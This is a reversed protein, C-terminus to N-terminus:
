LNPSMRLFSFFILMSLYLIISSPNKWKLGSIRTLLFLIMSVWFWGTFNQWPIVGDKWQWFDLRIAVPEIMMDLLLMLITSFFAGLLPHRILRLSIDHCCYGLILWNVGIMLPIGDVKTGLTDGYVYHGFLWGGKVGIWEVSWGYLFVLLGWPIFPRLPGPHQWLLLVLSLLLHFPVLLKFLERYAPLNFGLMGVLYFLLLLANIVKNKTLTFNGTM